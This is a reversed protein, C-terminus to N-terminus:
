LPIDTYEEPERGVTYVVTRKGDAAAYNYALVKLKFGSIELVVEIVGAIVASACFSSSEHSPDNFVPGAEHIYVPFKEDGKEISRDAQYLSPLLVFVIRYLLSNLDRDRKFRALLAIRQGIDRGIEKLDSELDPRGEKQLYRLLGCLEYRMFLSKM